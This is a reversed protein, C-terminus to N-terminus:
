KVYVPTVSCSVVNGGKTLQGREDYLDGIKVLGADLLKKNYVSRSEICIFKNNWLVQNTIESLSSPNFENQSTWVLLCEKYFDPLDVPLKKYDFNCHFM